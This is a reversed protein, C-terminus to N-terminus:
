QNSITKPKGTRELRRREWEEARTFSDEIPGFLRDALEAAGAVVSHLAEFAARDEIYLLFRGYRIVVHDHGSRAAAAAVGYFDADVPGRCLAQASVRVEPPTPPKPRNM